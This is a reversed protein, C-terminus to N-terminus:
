DNWSRIIFKITTCSCPPDLRSKCFKLLQGKKKLNVQSKPSIQPGSAVAADTRHTPADSGRGRQGWRAVDPSSQVVAEHRSRETQLRIGKRQELSKQTDTIHQRSMGVLKMHTISSGETHHKVSGTGFELPRQQGEHAQVDKNSCVTVTVVTTLGRSSKVSSSLSQINPQQINWTFILRIHIKLCTVKLHGRYKPINKYPFLGAVITKAWLPNQMDLAYKWFSFLPKKTFSFYHCLHWISMYIDTFFKTCSYILSMNFGLM